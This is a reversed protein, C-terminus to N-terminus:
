REYIRPTKLLYRMSETASHPGVRQYPPPTMPIREVSQEVLDSAFVEDSIILAHAPCLSQCTRCKVCLAAIHEVGLHEADDDYRRLAGTPCFTACMRCSKCIDTNIIVNGWLRAPVLVDDPVPMRRLVELEALRREPVFRPLAGDDTVKVVDESPDKQASARNSPSVAQEIEAVAVAQATSKIQEKLTSFFARLQTDYAQGSDKAVQPLKDAFRIAIQGGWANMLGEVTTVVERAVVMGTARSCQACAGHALCVERVGADALRLLLSEDVRGLCNLGVVADPDYYGAAAQTLKECALIVMGDAHGAARLCAQVLEEDTPAKPTLAGTPCVTTCTGCGICKATDLTIRGQEVSICGTTCAKACARCAANRNRVVACRHQNVAIDASELQTLVGIINAVNPM